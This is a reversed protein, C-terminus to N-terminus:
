VRYGPFVVRRGDDMRVPVSVMFAREPFRLREAIAEPVKAVQV